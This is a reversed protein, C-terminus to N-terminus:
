EKRLQLLSGVGDRGVEAADDEGGDSAGAACLFMRLERLHVFVSRHVFFLIADASAKAKKGVLGNKLLREVERERTVHARLIGDAHDRTHAHIRRAGLKRPLKDLLM